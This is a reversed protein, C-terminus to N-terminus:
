NDYIRQLLGHVGLVTLFLPLVTLRRLADDAEHNIDPNPSIQRIQRVSWYTYGLCVPIVLLFQAHRDANKAAITAIIMCAFSRDLITDIRKRIDADPEIFNRVYIEVLPILMGAWIITLGGAVESYGKGLEKFLPTM